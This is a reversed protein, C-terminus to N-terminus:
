SFPEQVKHCRTLTVKSGINIIGSLSFVMDLVNITSTVVMMSIAQAIYFGERAMFSVMKSSERTSIMIPSFSLEKEMTCTIRGHGMTNSMHVKCIGFITGQKVM